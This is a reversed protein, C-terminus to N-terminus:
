ATSGQGARSRALTPVRSIETLWWCVLEALAFATSSGGRYALDVLAAANRAYVRHALGVSLVEAMDLLDCPTLTLRRLHPPAPAPQRHPSVGLRAAYASLDRRFGRRELQTCVAALFAVAEHRQRRAGDAPPTFRSGFSWEFSLTFWVSLELRKRDATPLGRLWRLGSGLDGVEEGRGLSVEIRM